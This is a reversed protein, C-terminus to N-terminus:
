PRVYRNLETTLLVDCIDELSGIALRIEPLEVRPRVVIRFERQYAFAESKHFPGREDDCIAANAYTVLGSRFSALDHKRLAAEIRRHLEAPDRVMAAYPGLRLNREDVLPAGRALEALRDVTVAHMSFCYADRHLGEDPDGRVPEAGDRLEAFFGLPRLLLSGGLRFEEAYERKTCFKVLLAIDDLSAPTPAELTPRHSEGDM